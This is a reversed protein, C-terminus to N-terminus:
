TSLHLLMVSPVGYADEGADDLKLSQKLNHSWLLVCPPAFYQVAKVYSPASLPAPGPM